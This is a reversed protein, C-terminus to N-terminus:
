NPKKIINVYGSNFTDPLDKDTLIIENGEKLSIDSSNTINYGKNALFPKIIKWFNINSSFLKGHSINRFHRKMSKKRLCMCLNRQKRYNNWNERSRNKNYVNKLHTREYITKRWHEYSVNNGRVTKFKLPIHNNVIKLIKQAFNEYNENLDISKCEFHKQQIDSM